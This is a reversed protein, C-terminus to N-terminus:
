FMKSYEARLCNELVRETATVVDKHTLGRQATITTHEIIFNVKILSM